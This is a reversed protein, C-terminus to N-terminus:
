IYSGKILEEMRKKSIVMKNNFQCTVHDTVIQTTNYDDRHASYANCLTGGGIQIVYSAQLSLQYEWWSSYVTM